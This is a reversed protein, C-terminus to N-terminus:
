SQRFYREMDTTQRRALWYSSAQPDIKRDLPDRGVLRFVLAVPTFVLYYMAGMVVHSIVFGIPLTIMTLALYLWRLAAPRVAALLAAAGAIGWLVTALAQSTSTALSVSFINGRLLVWTGGAGFAVLCALGFRRLTRSDPNWNVTILAM